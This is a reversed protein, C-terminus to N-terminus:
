NNNLNKLLVIELPENPMKISGCDTYGNKRYFFQARENSLTSTLVTQFNNKRMDKELYDTLRKGYGQERYEELIYLMNMFPTNNWFMNFRLWGAFRKNDFIILIRNLKISNKLESESIHSDYKKLIALDNDTAYKIM